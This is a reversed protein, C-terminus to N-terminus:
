HVTIAYSHEIQDLDSYLYEVVKGDYNVEVTESITSINTITGMEGNFIGTGINEGQEWEIDYNNKMQM